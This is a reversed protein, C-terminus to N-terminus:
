GGERLFITLIQKETGWSALQTRIRYFCHYIQQASTARTLNLPSSTYTIELLTKTIQTTLKLQRSIRNNQHLVTQNLVVVVQGLKQTFITSFLNKNFWKILHIIHILRKIDNPVDKIGLPTVCLCLSRM